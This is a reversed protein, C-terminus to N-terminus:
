PSPAAPLGAAVDRTGQPDAALRRTSVERYFALTREAITAWDRRSLDPFSGGDREGSYWELAAHLVDVDFPGDYLYIWDKGVEARLEEFVPTRPLVVPRLMSISLLASGSNFVESFPLVCLDAREFVGPVQEDPVFGVDYRIRPDEAAEHLIRHREATQWCPGHVDLRLDARKSARVARVLEPVNKYASIAGFFLLRAGGADLVTASPPAAPYAARYHGHPIVAVPSHRLAPFARRALEVGSASMCIWGDLSGAVRRLFWGTLRPHRVSNHPRLNHITWVIRAGRLRAVALALQFLLARGSATLLSKSGIAHEPWNLHVVDCRDTFLRVQRMPALQVGLRQLEGNLLRIYPNPGSEASGLVLM